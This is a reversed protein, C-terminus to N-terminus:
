KTLTKANTLNLQPHIMQCHLKRSEGFNHTAINSSYVTDHM